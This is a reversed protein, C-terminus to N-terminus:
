LWTFSKGQYIKQIITDLHKIVVLPLEEVTGKLTKKTIVQTQQSLFCFLRFLAIM